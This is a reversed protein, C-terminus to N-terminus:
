YPPEFGSLAGKEPYKKKYKLNKIYKSDTAIYLVAQIWQSPPKDIAQILPKHTVM